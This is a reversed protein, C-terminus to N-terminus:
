PKSDAAVGCEMCRAKSRSTILGCFPCMRQSQFGGSTQLKVKRMWHLLLISFVVVLLGVSISTANIFVAITFAANM